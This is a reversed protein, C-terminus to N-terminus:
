RPRLCIVGRRDTAFYARSDLVVLPTTPRGLWSTRAWRYPRPAGAGELVMLNRDGQYVVRGSGTVPPVTSTAEPVRRRAPFDTLAVSGLVMLECLGPVRGALGLNAAAFDRLGMVEEVARLDLLVLEGKEDVLVLEDRSATPPAACPGLRARWLSRGNLLSYAQIGSDTAALVSRGARIPASGLRRDLRAPERWLRSGTVTDVATLRGDDTAVLLIGEALEPEVSGPGPSISWCEEPAGTSDLTYATLRSPGTWVYARECDVTMGASAAAEAVPLTWHVTGTGADICRLTRGTDRTGSFALVYKDAGVPATRIPQDLPVSWAVRARDALRDETELRLLEPRENRICPVYVAHGLSMLPATVDLKISSDSRPYTWALQARSPLPARDVRGGRRGYTWVVPPPPGARGICRLGDAPTGVYVHGHAVTPSSFFYLGGGLRAQWVPTLSEAEVCHLLGAQIAPVATVVYIHRDAVAPSAIIPAHANWRGLLKGDTSLCYLFRDRSGFYLKQGKVVLAGLVTRGVKYTWDCVYEPDTRKKELDICWVEGGPVIEKTAEAIERDSAKKERLKNAVAARVEEATQVFDGYGMAVYLKGNAIAPAAFVPYKTEMRWVVKPKKTGEIPDASAAVVAKGGLGLGFYVAGEYAIPSSECDKYEEGALHWVVNAKGDAGPELDLCYFGDDGAGIYVRGKYICPSSEVHSHTRHSWVKRGEKDVCFIRADETFHLGEGSVIYKPKDDELYVSPSSFTARFGEGDYRWVEGGTTTDICLIAGYDQYAFAGQKAYTIYLRNGVVTPSAYFTKQLTYDWVPDARNPDPKGAVYGRRHPGGRFATWEKGAQQETVAGTMWWHNMSGYVTGGILLILCVTFVKQHWLFLLIAKVTSPRFLALFAAGLGALLGPLLALFAQFPGILVPVVADAPRAFLVVCLVVLAIRAGHRRRRTMSFNGPEHGSGDPPPPQGGMLAWM